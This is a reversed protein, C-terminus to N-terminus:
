HAAYGPAPRGAALSPLFYVQFYTSMVLYADDMKAYCWALKGLPWAEDFTLTMRRNGSYDWFRMQRRVPDYRFHGHAIANRVHRHYGAAFAGLNIQELRRALMAPMMNPTDRDEPFTPGLSIDHLAILLRAQNPFVGECLILYMLCLNIYFHKESPTMASHYLERTNGHSEGIAEAVRRLRTFVRSRADTKRTGAQLLGDL